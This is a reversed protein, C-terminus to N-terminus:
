SKRENPSIYLPEVEWELGKSLNDPRTPGHVWLPATGKDAPKLRWRWAVPERSVYGGLADLLLRNIEAMEALGKAYVVREIGEREIEAALKKANM